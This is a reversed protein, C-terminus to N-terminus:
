SYWKTFADLDARQSEYRNYSADKDPYGISIGLIIKKSAPLQLEERVADPYNALSAQLCAGLGQSHAALLLGKLFLGLDIHSWFGLSKDISIFLACPAGFFRYNALRLEDRGVKDDRAIGLAEFRRANHTQARNGLEEPWESAVPIEPHVPVNAAALAYLTNSLSKLKEGTVVAVEWPQTNTYSPSRSAAKLITELTDRAIPKSQFARISKRTLLGELIEM